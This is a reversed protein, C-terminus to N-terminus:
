SQDIIKDDVLTKLPYKIVPILVARWICRNTIEIEAEPPKEVPM